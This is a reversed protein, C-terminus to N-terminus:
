KLIYLLVCFAYASSLSSVPALNCADWLCDKTYSGCWAHMQTLAVFHKATVESRCGEGGWWLWIKFFPTLKGQGRWLPMCPSYFRGLARSMRLRPVLHPYTTLKVSRGRWGRFLVGTGVPGVAQRCTRFVLLMGGAGWTMKIVTRLAGIVQKGDGETRALCRDCQLLVIVCAGAGASKKSHKVWSVPYQCLTGFRRYCVILLRRSVDWFLTYRM